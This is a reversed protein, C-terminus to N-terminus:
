ILQKTSKEIDSTSEMSQHGNKTAPSNGAGDTPSKAPSEITELPIFSNKKDFPFSIKGFAYSINLGIGCILSALICVVLICIVIVLIVILWVPDSTYVTIVIQLPETTNDMQNFVPTPPIESPTETTTTTPVTPTTPPACYLASAPDTFVSSFVCDAGYNGCNPDEALLVRFAFQLCSNPTQSLDTEASSQSGNSTSIFYYPDAQFQFAFAPNSGANQIEIEHMDKFLTVGVNISNTADCNRMEGENQVRYINEYHESPSDIRLTIVDGICLACPSNHPLKYSSPYRDENDCYNQDWIVDYQASFCLCAFCLIVYAQLFM